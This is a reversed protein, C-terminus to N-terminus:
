RSTRRKTATPGSRGPGRWVLAVSVLTVVVSVTLALHIGNLESAQTAAIASLIPIGITIAVNQTMTTLGTALGQEEDPLGSTGTVM